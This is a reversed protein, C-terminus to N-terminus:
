SAVQPKISWDPAAPLPAASENVEQGAIAHRRTLGELSAVEDCVTGAPVALWVVQALLKMSVILQEHESPARAAGIEFEKWIASLKHLDAM